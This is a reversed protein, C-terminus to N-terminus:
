SLKRRIVGLGVLSMGLLMASLGGDPVSDDAPDGNGTPIQSLVVNDLLAGYFQDGYITTTTNAFVLSVTEGGSPVTFALDETQFGAMGDGLAPTTYTESALGVQVSVQTTNEVWNQSNALSFSLDYNGPALTIAKSTIAGNQGNPDKLDIYLGNGPLFDYTPPSFYNNVGVGTYGVLDVSGATVSWNPFSPNLIGAGGLGNQNAAGFNVFAVGGNDTDFNDSFVPVAQVQTGIAVISATFLTTTLKKM